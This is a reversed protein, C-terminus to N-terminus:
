RPRRSGLYQWFYKLLLLLILPWLFCYLVGAIVQVLLPHASQNPDDEPFVDHFSAVWCALGIALYISAGITTMM